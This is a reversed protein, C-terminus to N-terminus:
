ERQSVRPAMAPLVPLGEIYSVLADQHGYPRQVRKTRGDKTAGPMRFCQTSKNVNWDVTAAVREDCQEKLQMTFWAAEHANQFACNAVIVHRSFKADSSSDCVILEPVIGYKDDFASELYMIFEKFLESSGGDIDFKPKQVQWDFIVEHTCHTAPPTPLSSKYADYDNYVRYKGKLTNRVVLTKGPVCLFNDNLLCDKPDRNIDLHLYKYGPM